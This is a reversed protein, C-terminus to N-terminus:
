QNPDYRRRRKSVVWTPCSAACNSCRSPPLPPPITLRRTPPPHPHTSGTVNPPPPPDTVKRMSVTVADYLGLTEVQLLTLWRAPVPHVAHVSAASGVRVRSRYARSLTAIYEDKSLPPASGRSSDASGGGGGGGGSSSSGNEKPFADVGGAIDTRDLAELAKAARVNGAKRYRAALLRRAAVTPEAYLGENKELEEYDRQEDEITSETFSQVAFVSSISEELGALSASLSFGGFGSSVNGHADCVGRQNLCQIAQSVLARHTTKIPMSPDFPVWSARQSGNDLSLALQEELLVLVCLSETWARDTNGLADWVGAHLVNDPAARGPGFVNQFKARIDEQSLEDFLDVRSLAQEELGKLLQPSICHGAPVPDEPLSWEIKGSDKVVDKTMLLQVHQLRDGGSCRVIVPMAIHNPGWLFHEGRGDLGTRGTPNLPYGKENRTLKGTHSFRLRRSRGLATSAISDAVGLSEISEESERLEEFASMSLGYIVEQIDEPDAQGLPNKPSRISSRVSGPFGESTFVTPSYASYATAWSLQGIPVFDSRVVPKGNLNRFRTVLLQAPPLKQQQQPQEPPQQLEKPNSSVLPVADNGTSESAFDPRLGQTRSATRGARSSTRSRGDSSPLDIKGSVIMFERTTINFHQQAASESNLNVVKKFFKSSLFLRATGLFARMALSPMYVFVHSCNKRMHHPLQSHFARLWEMSPRNESSSDVNSLFLSFNGAPNKKAATDITVVILLFLAKMVERYNPHQDNPLACVQIMVCPLGQLTSSVFICNLEEAATKNAAYAADIISLSSALSDNADDDSVPQLEVASAAQKPALQHSMIARSRRVMALSMKKADAQPLRQLASPPLKTEQVDLYETLDATDMVHLVKQAFKSSM